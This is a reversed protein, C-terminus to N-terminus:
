SMDSVAPNFGVELDPREANCTHELYTVGFSIDLKDLLELEEKQGDDFYFESTLRTKSIGASIKNVVASNESNESNDLSVFKNQAYLEGLYATLLDREAHGGVNTRPFVIIPTRVLIDFHIQNANEQMQSAQNMAAQRAANFLAQMKGFKIAYDIIKRFPEEVFNVKISGSRLYISSNYGPYSQIAEPDFTEYRFDALEDGQITVLQRLPSDEEAGENVDDFLSFNGLRAGIRMTKGMLFIGVDASALSLTALRIGDNNLILGISDLNIKVRIKDAEPPDNSAAPGLVKEGSDETAGEIVQTSTRAQNNGPNTFTTIIFDLLTLVTKRTIVVNITSISVDVNTEIAEYVTMFEPSERKVKVYKVFFLPNDNSQEQLADSTVIRKFNTSPDDDILDEVNLSKLIIEAAMDFPRIHFDLAFHEAVLLVLQKDPNRGEPDARFLSGRLEGVTFKLEFTRQHTSPSNNPIGDSAEEFHEDTEDEADSDDQLVLDEQRSPFQFPAPRAQDPMPKSKWAQAPQRVPKQPNPSGENGLKPIAVDIIKMLAKYKKDSLSAHLVPLHGSMRFKTLNSAKPLISIDVTFNINIRDVIHLHKRDSKARLQLKTEEM